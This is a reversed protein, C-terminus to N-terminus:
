PTVGGGTANGARTNVKNITDNIQTNVDGSATNATERFKFMIFAALAIIIVAIAIVELSVFGKSEKVKTLLNKM